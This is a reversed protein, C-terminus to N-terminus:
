GSLYSCCENHEKSCSACPLAQIRYKFTLRGLPWSIGKWYHTAAWRMALKQCDDTWDGQNDMSAAQVLVRHPISIQPQGTKTGSSRRWKRALLALLTAGTARGM